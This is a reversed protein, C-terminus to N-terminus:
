KTFDLSFTEGYERWIITSHSYVSDFTTVYVTVNECQKEQRFGVVGSQNNAIDAGVIAGLVTMADQGSGNGFQNGIAGGIIAGTITNGVSNGYVPIDVIRCVTNTQPVERQVNQFHDIVTANVPREAFAPTATVLLALILHKM